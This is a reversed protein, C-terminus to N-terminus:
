LATSVLQSARRQQEVYAQPRKYAGAVLKLLWVQFEEETIEEAMASYEVQQSLRGQVTPAPIGQLERVAASIALSKTDDTM